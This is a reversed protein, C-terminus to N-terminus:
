EEYSFCNACRSWLSDYITVQHGDKAIIEAAMLGSPGGIIAINKSKKM